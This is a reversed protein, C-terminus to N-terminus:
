KYVGVGARICFGGEWKVVWVWESGVRIIRIARM